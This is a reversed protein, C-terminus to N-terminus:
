PLSAVGMLKCLDVVKKPRQIVAAKETGDFLIAYKGVYYGLRPLGTGEVATDFIPQLNAGTARALYLGNAYSIQTNKGLSPGSINLPYERGPQSALTLVVELRGKSEIEVNGYRDTRTRQRVKDVTFAINVPEVCAGTIVQNEYNVPAWASWGKSGHQAASRSAASGAKPPPGGAQAPTSFWVLAATAVVVAIFRKM